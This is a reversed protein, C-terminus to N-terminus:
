SQRESRRISPMFVHVTETARVIYAVYRKVVQANHRRSPRRCGFCSLPYPFLTIACDYPGAVSNPAITITICTQQILHLLTYCYSFYSIKRAVCANCVDEFTDDRKPTCKASNQTANSFAITWHPRDSPTFLTLQRASIIWRNSRQQHCNKSLHRQPKEESMPRNTTSHSLQRHLSIKNVREDSFCLTIGIPRDSEWHKYIGNGWSRLVLPSMVSRLFAYQTRAFPYRGM